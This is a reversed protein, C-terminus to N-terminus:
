IFLAAIAFADIIILMLSVEEKKGTIIKILTWSIFGWVIGQTISNALPILIMGIFAPIADDLKGWNIKTVPKMMFVGVLILAPATAISPV